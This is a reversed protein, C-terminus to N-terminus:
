GPPAESTGDRIAEAVRVVDRLPEVDHVRVARAGALVAAAVAAASGFLREGVSRGTIEGIFRKRSVGVMIPVGLDTGLAELHRLLRLNHELKKGFGIGPDAWVERCGAARTATIREALDRQVERVVDEFVVDEMMKAPSGRLHGLVV